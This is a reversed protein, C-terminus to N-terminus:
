NLLSTDKPEDRAECQKRGIEDAFIGPTHGLYAQAKQSRGRSSILTFRM